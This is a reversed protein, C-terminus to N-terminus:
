RNAPQSDSIQEAARGHVKYIRTSGEAFVRDWFEGEAAEFKEIGNPAAHKRELEGVIVYRAQYRHLLDWATEPDPTNYIEHVDGIRNVIRTVPLVGMQQRLHWSWGVISPLGTYVSMRNGWSYIVPHTNMEAIVPTGQVENRLWTIAALDASMHRRYGSGPDSAEKLYAMGDLTLEHNAALRDRARAPTATLPYLLGALVLTALGLTFLPRPQTALLRAAAISAAIALLTWAQFYFKFVTNMRSVDGDLVLLEPILTLLLALTTLAFLYRDTTRKTAATLSLALTLVLLAPTIAKTLLLIATALAATTLVAIKQTRPTNILWQAIPQKPSAARNHRITIWIAPLLAFLFIGFITLYDVLPTISGTWWQFANQAPSWWQHFPLFLLYALAAIAITKIAAAISTQRITKARRIQALLIAGALLAICTPVDWTNTAWSAGITWAGLALLMAQAPRGGERRRAFSISLGLAVLMLPMGILHAHLDGYLFTFYPFETIPKAEEGSRSIARSADFYWTSPRYPLPNGTLAAQALKAPDTRGNIAENTLIRAQRLNGIGLVFLVALAAYGIRTRRTKGVRRRVLAFAIGFVAMASMAYLSLLALNYGIEPAIATLKILAAFPVFGFYYYNIYAGAYWPNYPPFTEARIIANLYAFDMPKEGGMQPHWLDPNLMRILAMAAFAAIFITEEALLLKWRAALFARLGDRQRWALITGGSAVVLFATSISAPSFNAIGISAWLWALWATMMLGLIRALSYGRDPLRECALYVLPWIAWGPALLAALWITLAPLGQLGGNPFINAWTGGQEQRDQNEAPLLLGTPADHHNRNTVALVDSWSGQDLIARATKRHYAPTKQFIHVQPHDYVSFAEEAQRSSFTMGALQPESEFEAIPEFGLSGDFLARYYRTTMPYRAPLRPISEALRNSSLVIYDAEDLWKIASDLKDPSDPNYWLMEVGNYRNPFPTRGLPLPLADDWHENAITSGQPVNHYIWESAEIRTHPHAYIQTFAATWSLASVAVAASTGIALPRWSLAARWGPFSKHRAQGTWQILLWAALIALCGYLPLFYRMTMVWSTGYQFFVAAVWLVPILHPWARNRVLKTAAIAWGTWGALGLLIGTGWITINTWPFWLPTRGVWQAGPPMDIEGSALRLSERLNDLWRESPFFSLLSASRFADPEAIRFIVIAALCFGAFRFMGSELRLARSSNEEGSARLSTVLFVAFAVVVLTVASIKCAAAMGLFIGAVICHRLRQSTQFKALFLLAATLFTNAFPDVVFFHAHQIATVTTAYFLAGLMAIRRDRYLTWALQYILWVTLVDFLASLGRGAFRISEYNDTGTLTSATKILALPLLGYTYFRFGKNRPNLPNANEDLYESPSQPWDIATAVMYLFREDPHLHQGQDWDLGYFRVAVALLLVAALLWRHRTNSSHPRSQAATEIQAVPTALETM